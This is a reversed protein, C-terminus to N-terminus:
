DRTVTLLTSAESVVTENGDLLYGRIEHVTTHATTKARVDFVREISERTLLNLRLREESASEIFFKDNDDTEFLLRGDIELNGINRATVVLSTTDNNSIMEEELSLELDIEHIIEQEDDVTLFSTIFVSLAILVVILVIAIIVRKNNQVFSKKKLHQKTM